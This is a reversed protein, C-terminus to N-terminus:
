VARHKRLSLVACWAFLVALVLLVALEHFVQSLAEGELMMKQLAEAGYYLPMINKFPQLWSEMNEFPFLGSFFAQPVIVVPIFQVMQLENNAFSSLLLGLTLATFSLLLSVTLVEAFSGNMRMDLAYVSFSVIFVAQLCAFVGYGLLYGLVMESRRIPSALLRELTGSTRERLFAVGALLFIFFFSFFGVLVPGIQHFLSLGGPADPHGAFVLKMLTLIFLPALFLQALSRKDRVFQLIIRWALKRIRM